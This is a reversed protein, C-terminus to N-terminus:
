KGDNEGYIGNVPFSGEDLATRVIELFKAPSITETGRVPKPLNDTTIEDAKLKICPFYLNFTTGKGPESLVEVTGQHQQVIGHVIALGLGTGKGTEKTTFFPEFNREEMQILNGYGMIAMLVNNFDHDVGGALRGVSELKQAHYLQEKLLTQEQQALKLATIDTSIGCVAYVNGGSDYLPLKVSIYTHLGDDLAVCEECKLPTKTKIIKQDNAWLTDAVEAPWLDHNTKGEAEGHQLHFLKEFQKNVLIHRGQVDKVYIVATTNDFISQLLLENKRLVDERLRRETVDQMDFNGAAIDNSALSLAYLPKVTRKLFAIFLFVIMVTVVAAMIIISIFVNRIPALVEDKDIELLLTWKMSPIYMSAGVVEVGRYDQYFGAIEENAELGRQVPLTDVTQKLAADKIFISETIMLKDKNVLYMELTRWAGKGKGWSIAGLEKNFRGQLLNCVEVFNVFNVIVGIPRGTDKGFIPASFAIEAFEKLGDNCEM